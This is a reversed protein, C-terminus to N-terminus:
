DLPSSLQSGETNIHLTIVAESYQWCRLNDAIHFQKVKDLVIKMLASVPNSKMAM